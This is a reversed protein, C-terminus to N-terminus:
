SRREPQADSRAGIELHVIGGADAGDEVLDVVLDGLRGPEAALPALRASIPVAAAAACQHHRQRLLAGDGGGGRGAFASARVGSLARGGRDARRRRQLRLRLALNQRINRMTAQSLRRAKLIGALDGKVLTIAPPRSRSTPAPGWPSASIPRPLRRRTTSATAPWRSSTGRAASASAGGREQAGAPGGGGGRRHRAPARDGEATTRNDGTLM